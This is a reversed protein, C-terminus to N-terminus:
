GAPAGCQAALLNRLWQHGTDAEYVGHWQMTERLPTCPFPCKHIALPLWRASLTALRRQITAVRQTGVVSLPLLAYLPLEAAVKRKIGHRAADRADIPLFSPHNPRRVVHELEAYKAVTLRKGVHETREWAVCVWDDEFLMQSAYGKVVYLHPVVLLDIEGRELDEGLKPSLPQVEIRVAPALSELQQLLGPMAVTAFYDSASIRFTRSATRPEFPPVPRTVQQIRLLIARVEARMAEGKQTRVMKRGVQTMLEDQYHRRLRGLANSMASQTLFLRDAARSVSCEDLLADLAVLLNLDLKEHRM